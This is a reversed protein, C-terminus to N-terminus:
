RDQLQLGFGERRSRLDCYLLGKIAQWFPLMLISSMWGAILSIFYVLQYLASGPELMLMFLQPIYSTIVILPLTVMWAVLIIGQIRLVSNHTLKWSREVSQSGNIEEIALPVEAIFWRAYFWLCAYVVFLIVGGNFLISLIIGVVGLSGATLPNASGLLQSILLNVGVLLMITLLAFGIYVIFLAVFVQWAVRLFSWKRPNTKRRATAVDEPHATLEGVALRSLLGTIAMYKAWGYIPVFIWLHAYLSLRLFEKLRGRYLNLGATVINGISLPHISAASLNQVM